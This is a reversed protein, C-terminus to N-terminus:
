WRVHLAFDLPSRSEIEIRPQVCCVADLAAEFTGRHHWPGLTDAALEFVGSRAGTEEYTRRAEDEVALASGALLMM